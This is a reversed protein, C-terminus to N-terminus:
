LNGLYSEAKDIYESDPFDQILLGFYHKANETDGLNLHSKGLMLLADDLKPSDTFNIVRNFATIASQYDRKGYYSEGIWYQCNGALRNNANEQLLSTMITIAGDYDHAYFRELGAEYNNSFGPSAAFQQSTSSMSNDPPTYGSAGPNNEMEKVKEKRADILTKIELIESQKESVRENLDDVRSRLAIFEELSYQSQNQDDSGLSDDAVESDFDAFEADDALLDDEPRPKDKARFYYTLGIRGNLYGDTFGGQVGDFDDGTTYRYDITTNLGIKPNFMWELGAGLIFSGDFFRKQPATPFSFNIIGLGLIAYPNFQQQPLPWYTGKLDLTILNTSRQISSTATPEYYSKLWSYGLSSILAFKNIRLSYHMLGEGAFDTASQVYRDGYLRQGGLNFGIGVNSKFDSKALPINVMLCLMILMFLSLKKM